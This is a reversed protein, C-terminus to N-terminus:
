EGAVDAYVAHYVVDETVTVQQSVVMDAPAPDQKVKPNNTSAAPVWGVLHGNCAAKESVTRVESVTPATLVTGPAKDADVRIQYDNSRWTVTYTACTTVYNSYTTGPKRYLVIVGMTNGSKYCSFINNLNDNNHQLCPTKNNNVSTVDNCEITSNYAITWLCADDATTKGKMYNTGTAATGAAYLYYTGDFLTWAGASGGLTLECAGSLSAINGSVDLTVANDTALCNNAPDVYAKMGYLTENKVGTIVIKDGAKLVSVDTLKSYKADQGGGVAMAFVANFTIDATIEPLDEIKNFLDTPANHGEGVLTSTSWGMFTNACTPMVTPAEPLATVHEGPWLIQPTATGNVNWTVIIQQDIAFTVTIETAATIGSVTYSNGSGTVTGVTATVASVHYHENPACTVTVSGGADDACVTEKSVTFSGNECASKTVTVESECAKCTTTYNSYTANLKEYAFVSGAKNEAAKFKNENDLYVDYLKTGGSNSGYLGGNTEDWWAKYNSTVRGIGNGNIVLYENSTSATIAWKADASEYTFELDTNETTVVKNGGVESVTVAVGETSTTASTELGMAPLAYASGAANSSVIIYTKGVEPTAVLQYGTASGDTDAFVAHYTVNGGSVTPADAATNFLDSPATTPDTYNEIATWGVFTKGGCDITPTTPLTTVKSGDNVHTTPSGATYTENNVKWAVTRVVAPAASYNFTIGTLTIYAATKSGGNLALSYTFRYFRNAWSKGAPKEFTNNTNATLSQATLSSVDGNGGTAALAATSYVDLKITSGSNMSAFTGHAVIIESIDESIAQKSYLFRTRTAKAKEGLRWGGSVGQNGPTVWTIDDVTVQYTNTTYSTNSGNQACTFTYATEGWVNSSLSLLAAVM